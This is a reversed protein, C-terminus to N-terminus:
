LVRHLYRAKYYPRAEDGRGIRHNISPMSGSSRASTGLDKLLHNLEAQRKRIPGHRVLHGVNRVRKTLVWNLLYVCLLLTGRGTRDMSM